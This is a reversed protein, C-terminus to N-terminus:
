GRYEPSAARALPSSPPPEQRVRLRAVEDVSSCVALAELTRYTPWMLATWLQFRALADAPREWWALDVEEMDPTAATGAPAIVSYFWADFRVPLVEPALWRAMEHLDDVAPPSSSVMDDISAGDTPRLGDATLALGAEEALERVACARMRQAADGFWAAARREDARDAVGGPFVVYGPAFRSGASRRLLLVEVGSPGPRAVVVTAAPRPDTPEM